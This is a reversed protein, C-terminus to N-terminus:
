GPAEMVQVNYHKGQVRSLSTLSNSGIHQSCPIHPPCPTSWLQFNTYHLLRCNRKKGVFSGVCVPSAAEFKRRCWCRSGSIVDLKKRGGKRVKM